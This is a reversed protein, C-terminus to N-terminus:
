RRVEIRLCTVSPPLALLGLAVAAVKPRITPANEVRAPEEVTM